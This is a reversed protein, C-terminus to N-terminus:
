DPEGLYRYLTRRGIGLIEAARRKNNGARKLVARVYRREIEELTPLAEGPKLALGPDIALDKGAAPPAFQLREPLDGLDIEDSRCFTVAREITNSLERVNGPFPYSRLCALARPTIGKVPRAFRTAYLALFRAALLEVDDGRERLPPIALPFTELRYFLDERFRGSRVDAELDRHTAAIIRVNVAQEHNSGLPRVKGDELIRLLKVQMDAPMEGIEDLLLSGGDAEVFLGKRPRAAGTFAGPAHGFLENELLQPPIGACNVTVFPGDSRPSEAHLARAVLEKGTGSEGLLLVPGAAHAVRRINAYLERMCASRAIIGHFDDRGLIQRYGEVERRLRRTELVRRVCVQLHELDLPKTLFDDAGEKLAAVAQEITGFATVAIFAPPAPLQRLRHMLDLGGPGPLRLDSIVVEAPAEQLCRWAGQVDGAVMVGYGGDELEERLLERHGADDEVVLVRPVLATRECASM